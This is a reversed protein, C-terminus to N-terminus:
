REKRDSVEQPMKGYLACIARPRTNHAWARRGVSASATEGTSVQRGAVVGGADKTSARDRGGCSSTLHRRDGRGGRARPRPRLAPEPEAPPTARVSKLRGAGWALVLEFLSAIGFRWRAQAPVRLALDPRPATRPALTPELDPGRMTRPHPDPPQVPGPCPIVRGSRAHTQALSPGPVQLQPRSQGTRPPARFAPNPRPAM